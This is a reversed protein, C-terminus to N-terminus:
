SFSAKATVNNRHTDTDTQRHTEAKSSKIGKAFNLQVQCFCFTELISSEQTEHLCDIKQLVFVLIKGVKLFAAGNTM